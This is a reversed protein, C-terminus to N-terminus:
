STLNVIGEPDKWFENRVDALISWNNKLVTVCPDKPDPRTLDHNGPVALLSPKAGLSRLCDWLQGLFEDVQKFEEPSGKDTLDGTFIVLDWPKSKEYLPELSDFFKDEVTPLLSSQQHMGLHLDTLHLWGFSTM